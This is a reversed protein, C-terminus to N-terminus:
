GREIICPFAQRTFRLVRVGMRFQSPHQLGPALMGLRDSIGTGLFRLTRRVLGRRRERVCMLPLIAQVRDDERAVLVFLSQDGRSGLHTWWARLWDFGLFVSDSDSAEHLARWDSELAAFAADDTVEQIELMREADGIVAM